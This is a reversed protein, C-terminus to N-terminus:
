KKLTRISGEVFRRETKLSIRGGAGQSVVGGVGFKMMELM